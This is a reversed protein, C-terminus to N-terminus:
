TIVETKLKEFFKRDEEGFTVYDPLVASEPVIGPALSTDHSSLKLTNNKLDKWLEDDAEILFTTM